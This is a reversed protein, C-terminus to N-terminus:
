IHSSNLGGPEVHSRPAPAPLTSIGVTTAGNGGANSRVSTSDTRGSGGSLLSQNTGKVNSLHFDVFMKQKASSLKRDFETLSPSGKAVPNGLATTMKEGRFDEKMTMRSSSGDPSSGETMPIVGSNVFNLYETKKGPTMNSLSGHFDPNTYAWPNREVDDLYLKTTRPLRTLTYDNADSFKTPTCDGSVSFGRGKRRHFRVLCVTAVILVLVGLVAGIIIFIFGQYVHGTAPGVDLRSLPLDNPSVLFFERKLIRRM